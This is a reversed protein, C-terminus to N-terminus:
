STMPRFIRALHFNINSKVLVYSLGFSSTRPKLNVAALYYVSVRALYTVFKKYFRNEKKQKIDVKLQICTQVASLYKRALFLLYFVQIFFAKSIKM